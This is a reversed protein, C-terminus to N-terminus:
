PSFGVGMALGTPVASATGKRLGASKGFSGNKGFGANKWGAGEGIGETHGIDTGKALDTDRCFAHIPRGRFTTASITAVERSDSEANAERLSLFLIGATRQTSPLGPQVNERSPPLV